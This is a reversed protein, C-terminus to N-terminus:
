FPYIVRVSDDVTTADIYGIMSPNRSIMHKMKDNGMVTEPPTGKGSFLQKAWYTNVKKHNLKLVSSIFARHVQSNEDQEIPVARSGDRFTKQQGLFIRSIERRDLKNHNDPHVVVVVQAWTHTNVAASLTLFVLVTAIFTTSITSNM